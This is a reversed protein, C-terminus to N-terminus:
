KNNKNQGFKLTHSLFKLYNLTFAHRLNSISLETLTAKILPPGCKGGSILALEWQIFKHLLMSNFFSDLSCILDSLTKFRLIHLVKMSVSGLIEIALRGM